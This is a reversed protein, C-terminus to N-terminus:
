DIEDLRNRIGIEVLNSDPPDYILKYTDRSFEQELHEKAITSTETRSKDKWTAEFVWGSKNETEGLIVVLGGNGNTPVYHQGTRIQTM